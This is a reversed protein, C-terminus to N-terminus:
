KGQPKTAAAIAAKKDAMAKAAQTNAAEVKGKAAKSAAKDVDPDTPEKAPAEEETPAKFAIIAGLTGTIFDRTDEMLSRGVSITDNGITYMARYAFAIDKDVAGTSASSGKKLASDIAKSLAKTQSDIKIALSRARNMDMFDVVAMTTIAPTRTHVEELFYKGQNKYVMLGVGTHLTPTAYVTGDGSGTVIKFSALWKDVPITGKIVAGLDMAMVQARRVMDLYVNVSDEVDMIDITGKGRWKSDAKEYTSNPPMQKYKAELTPRDITGKFKIKGIAMMAEIGRSSAMGFGIWAAMGGWTTGLGMWLTVTTLWKPLFRTSGGVKVVSKSIAGFATRIVGGLAGVIEVQRELLREENFEEQHCFAIYPHTANFAETVRTFDGNIPVGEVIRNLSNIPSLSVVPSQTVKTFQLKSM